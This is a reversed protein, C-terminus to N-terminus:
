KNSEALTPIHYAIDEPPETAVYAANHYLMLLTHIAPADCIEARLGCGQIRSVIDQLRKKLEAEADPGNHWFMWYYQRELIEGSIAFDSLAMIEARLLQKQIMDDSHSYLQSYEDLVPDISIPRSICLMRWPDRMSSLEATLTRVHATIEAPSMLDYSVPQVRLYSVVWGDRTYLYPGVVDRVNVYASAPNQPAQNRKTRM